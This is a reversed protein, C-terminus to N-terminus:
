YGGRRRALEDPQGRLTQAKMVPSAELASIQDSLDQALGIAAPYQPSKEGKIWSIVGSLGDSANQFVGIPKKDLQSSAPMKIALIKNAICQLPGKAATNPRPAVRGTFGKVDDAVSQFVTDAAQVAKVGEDAFALTSSAAFLVVIFVSICKKIM